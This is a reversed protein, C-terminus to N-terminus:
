CTEKEEEQWCLFIVLEPFHLTLMSQFAVPPAPCKLKHYYFSMNRGGAWRGCFILFNWFINSPLSIKESAGMTKLCHTVLVDIERRKSAMDKLHANMSIIEVNQNLPGQLGGQGKVNLREWRVGAIETWWTRGRSLEKRVESTLATWCWGRWAWDERPQVFAMARKLEIVGTFHERAKNGGREGGEVILSHTASLGLSKPKHEEQDNIWWKNLWRVKILWNDDGMINMWVRDLNLCETNCLYGTVLM